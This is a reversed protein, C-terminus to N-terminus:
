RRKSKDYYVHTSKKFRQKVCKPLFNYCRFLALVKEPPRNRVREYKARRGQHLIADLTILKLNRTAHPEYLVSVATYKRCTEM